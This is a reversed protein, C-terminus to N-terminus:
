TLSFFSVLLHPSPLHVLRQEALAFNDPYQRLQRALGFQSTHRHLVVHPTAVPRFNRRSPSFISPGTPQISVEFLLPSETSAALLAETIDGDALYFTFEAPCSKSPVAVFSSLLSLHFLKLLTSFVHFQSQHPAQWEQPIM